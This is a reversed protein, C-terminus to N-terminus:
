GYHGGSKKCTTVEIETRPNKADKFRRPSPLEDVRVDADGEAVGFVGAAELADLVPSISSDLDRRPVTVGGELHRNQVVYMDIQVCYLPGEPFKAEGSNVLRRVEKKVKARFERGAPTLRLMAMRGRGAVPQWHEDKRPPNGPITIKM